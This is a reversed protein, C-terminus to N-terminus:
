KAIEAIFKGVKIKHRLSQMKEELKKKVDAPIESSEEQWGFKHYFDGHPRENEGEGVNVLYTEIWNVRKGAKCYGICYMEETRNSEQEEGAKGWAEHTKDYIEQMLNDVTDDKAIEIESRGLGTTDFDNSVSVEVVIKKGDCEIKCSAVEKKSAYWGTTFPKRAKLAARLAKERDPYLDTLGCHAGDGSFKKFINKMNGAEGQRGVNKGRGIRM